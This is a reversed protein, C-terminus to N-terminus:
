LTEWGGADIVGDLKRVIYNSINHQLWLSRIFDDYRLQQLFVARTKKNDGAVEFHLDIYPIAHFSGGNKNLLLISRDKPLLFIGVSNQCKKTYHTTCQGHRSGLTARQLDCVEGCFMCVAPNEIALHPFDYRELYYYRTFFDDLRDPLRVLLILGPYELSSRREIKSNEYQENQLSALFSKFRTSELTLCPNTQSFERLIGSLTPLNLIACLKDAEFISSDSEEYLESESHCNVFSFIAAQRLFPTISKLLMSFIIYGFKPSLIIEDTQYESLSSDLIASFSTMTFHADDPAIMESFPFDLLTFDAKRFFNREVVNQVIINLTQIIHGIFCVRLIEHFSYGATPMPFVNVLVELFDHQLISKNFNEASLTLLNALIKVHTDPKQHSNKVWNSTKMLLSTIRFENLARLNILANNTVQHYVIGSPCSTGRLSIETAKITNVLINSSDAKLIQPFTLLSLIQFMNSLLMRFQQQGTSALSDSDQGIIDKAVNTLISYKQLDESASKCFTNFWTKDHMKNRLLDSFANEKSTPLLFQKLSRNNATWLIPVFMNNLAKCLPCLFERHEINDPTNRTIHNSRSRNSALFQVYCNFHMGHGCTLSVLKSSVNGNIPFGPGIVSGEEVNRLFEDHRRTTTEPITQSNNGNLNINDSFAKVRWYDSEFPVNRFESSRSVHVILGFPGADRATDQCLICHSVPFKWGDEEADEMEADSDDNAMDNRQLFLSQQKKFKALLKKQRQLAMRKKRESDNEMLNDCPANLLKLDFNNIEKDMITEFFNVGKSFCRFIARVKAHHDKMDDHLLTDYLTQALSPSCGPPAKVARDCFLMEYKSEECDKFACSHIVHLLTDLLGDLKHPGEQSVFQLCTVLFGVFHHSSTFRGLRGYIGAKGFSTRLPEIVVESVPQNTNKLHREKMLKLVEDKKNLTYNHYYPNVRKFYEEKLIFTGSEKGSTPKRFHAVRELTSDFFRESVIHEPIQSSLKSYNMSGLCLQHIIEDEIKIQTIENISLSRMFLGETLVHLFFSLCEELIYPLTSKDYSSKSEPLLGDDLLWLRLIESVTKDVDHCILYIQTLFIDRLYGQERLGTSKYLQLQNKVSFGNRVWFGTKVQAALVISQIPYHFICTLSHEFAERSTDNRVDISADRLIKILDDSDKFSAYEILWSLFLHLPHLFSVVAKTESKMSSGDSFGGYDVENHDRSNSPHNELRLISGAVHRIASPFIGAKLGKAEGNKLCHSVYEALQYIIPIAHFFATYDSSEYEVHSEVERRMTPKGQFLSLLDCTMPVMSETLLVDSNQGRSVIYGIDFFLQGWRRNKLSNLSIDTDASLSTSHTRGTKFFLIVTCIIRSVDGHSLIAASNSPSIFLQCSLTCMVNIEPDGDLNLFMDSIFPYIDCYQYCIVGKWKLNTILTTAYMTHLALRFAKWFRIDLFALYQLRSGIHKQGQYDHISYGCEQCLPEIHKWPEPQTNQLSGLAIEVNKLKPIDFDSDLQAFGRDHEEFSLSLHLGREWRMCFARCFLNRLPENAKLLDCSSLSELWQIIEYCMEERFEDRANRICSSLGTASLLRQREILLNPDRSRIVTARGHDQIRKAVMEAFEPVKKSALHIRQVADRFHRIQDNYAILSYKQSVQDSPCHFTSYGYRRPNLERNSWVQNAANAKEKPSSFQQDSQSMVDIIFDLLVGIMVLLTEQLDLSPKMTKLREFSDNTEHYVCRFDKIWAEPDGCDCVGGNDRVCITVNINHGEHSESQFCNSCLACTDNFGCTLCKYIPEGRRFVRSCPLDTHYAHHSRGETSTLMRAVYAAYKFLLWQIVSDLRSHSDSENQDFIEPFFLNLYLGDCSVARFLEKRLQFKVDDTLSFNLRAPLDFLFRRLTDISSVNMDFVTSTM